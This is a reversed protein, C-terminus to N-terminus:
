STVDDNKPTESRKGSPVTLNSWTPTRGSATLIDTWLDDTGALGGLVRVWVPKLAELGDADPRYQDGAADAIDDHHISLENLGLLMQLAVPIPGFQHPMIEQPDRCSRVFRTTEEELRLLPDGEFSEVARLNEVSLEDREFPRSLDGARGRALMRNFREFTAALHATIDNVTWPPCRTPLGSNRRDAATALYRALEREVLVGADPWPGRYQEAVMM